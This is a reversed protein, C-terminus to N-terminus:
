IANFETLKSVTDTESMGERDIFHKQSTTGLRALIFATVWSKKAGLVETNKTTQSPQLMYYENPLTHGAPKHQPNHTRNIIAKVGLDLIEWM